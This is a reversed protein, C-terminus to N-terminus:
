KFVPLANNLQINNAAFTDGLAKDMSIRSKVLDLHARLLRTQAELLDRQAQLVFYTTNAGLRYKEQEGELRQQNYRVTVQATQVRARSAEMADYAQRVELVISQRVSRLREDAQRYQIQAQANNARAEDNGIPMRFSFGLAYGTYKMSFLQSLSNQFGGPTRGIIPAGIFGKSYDRIITDGGLGTQSYGATFDLIPRLQNRTYDIQIKNNEQQLQLQRIEPRIELARQIAEELSSAPLPVQFPRPFLPEIPTAMAGPDVQSSLMKKLREEATKRAFRSNVLDEDRAAVEAEAQVVDLPAMTGVEAQIKNQDLTLQALTRSEEKLKIDEDAYVLDWYTNLVGAIIDTTRTVFTEESIGYNNRAIKIFRTRSVRGFDRLLHQTLTLGLGPQLSPNLSLFSSNGRMRQTNYNLDVDMGFSLPKHWLFNYLNQLNLVSTGGQLASSSPTVTRNLNADLNLTANLVGRAKEVDWMSLYPGYREVNIDVNHELALRVADEPALQIKGDRVLDALTEKGRAELSETLPSTYNGYFIRTFPGGPPPSPEPVEQRQAFALGSLILGAAALALLIRRARKM